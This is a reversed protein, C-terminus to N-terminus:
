HEVGPRPRHHRHGAAPPATAPVPAPSANPTLSPRKHPLRSPRMSPHALVPCDLLAPPRRTPLLCRCACAALWFCGAVELWCGDKRSRAPLRPGCSPSACISGGAQAVGLGVVWGVKFTDACDDILKCGEELSEQMRFVAADTQMIKQM